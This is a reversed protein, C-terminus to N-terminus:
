DRLYDNDVNDTYIVSVGASYDKQMDSLSNVTHVCVPVGLSKMTEFFDSGHLWDMSTEWDDSLGYLWSEYFTVALFDNEVFAQRVEEYDDEDPAYRYLTWLVYKFGLERLPEYEEHQYAQIIFRDMLDPCERAILGAGELNSSKIDTVIYLDEHQRMYEALDSLTIPTFFEKISGYKFDAASIGDHNDPNRFGAFEHSCVLVGDETMSFDVEAVRNGTEYCNIMAELSNTYNYKEGDDGRVYGFAHVVTKENEMICRMKIVDAQYAYVPYIEHYGYFFFAILGAWLFVMIVWLFTTADRVPRNQGLRVGITIQIRRFILSLIVLLISLILTVCVVKLIMREVTIVSLFDHLLHWGGLNIVSEAYNWVLYFSVGILLFVLWTFFMTSM